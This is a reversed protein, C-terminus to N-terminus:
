RLERCEEVSCLAVPNLCKIAIEGALNNQLVRCFSDPYACIYGLAVNGLQASLHRSVGFRVYRRAASRRARWRPEIGRRFQAGNILQASLLRCEVLKRRFRTPLLKDVM